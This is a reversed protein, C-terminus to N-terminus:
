TGPKRVQLPPMINCAYEQLDKNRYAARSHIFKVFELEPIEIKKDLLTRWEHREQNRSIDKCIQVYISEKLFGEEDEKFQHNWLMMTLPMYQRSDPLLKNYYKGSQGNVPELKLDGTKRVAKELESEKKVLLGYPNFAPQLYFLMFPINNVSSHPYLWGQSEYYTDLCAKARADSIYFGLHKKAFGVALDFSERVTNYIAIDKKSTVEKRAERPVHTGQVARPCYIYNQYNFENLGKIGKGTHAGYKRDGSYLGRIQIPNECEPCTAYYHTKGNINQKFPFENKTYKEFEEQSIGHPTELSSYLVFSKM